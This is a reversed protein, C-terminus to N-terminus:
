FHQQRPPNSFTIIQDGPPATEGTKDAYPFQPVATGLQIRKLTAITDEYRARFVEYNINPNALCILQWIAIIKVYNNLLPSSFTPATNAIPDGFLQVLDYRTLYLKVEEIALDIAATALTGGDNRTIETLIEPYIHTTLDNSTIIPTYPMFQKKYNTNIGDKSLAWSSM